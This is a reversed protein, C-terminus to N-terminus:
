YCQEVQYRQRGESSSILSKRGRVTVGTGRCSQAACVPKNACIGVSQEWIYRGVKSVLVKESLCSLPASSSGSPHLFYEKKCLLLFLFTDGTVQICDFWM